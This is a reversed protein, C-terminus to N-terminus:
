GSSECTDRREMQEIGTVLRLGRKRLFKQRYYDQRRKRLAGYQRGERENRAQQQMHNASVAPLYGVRFGAEQMRLYFGLHDVLKLDCDWGGMTDRVDATDAVYFNPLIDFQWIARPDEREVLEVHLHDDAMQIFNGRYMQLREGDRFLGGGVLSYPTDRVMLALLPLDSHKTLVFDDELLAYYPTDVAELARQYGQCGGIDFPTEIARILAPLQLAQTYHERSQDVVVLPSEPMQHLWSTLMRTLAKPRAITSVIGTVEPGLAKKHQRNYDQAENGNERMWLGRPFAAAFLREYTDLHRSRQENYQFNGVQEHDVVVQPVYWVRLGALKAAWFFPAHEAMKYRADWPCRRLADRRAVFFNFVTDVKAPSALARRCLHLREDHAVLDGEYHRVETGVRVAGGVIDAPGRDIWQVLTELRTDEAFVFDDDLVAVLPTTAAEVIANRGASLGVNAPLTLYRINPDNRCTEPYPNWSDDAVIIPIEPYYRRISQLLKKLCDRREFTKVLLTLGTM